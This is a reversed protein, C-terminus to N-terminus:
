HGNLLASISTLSAADVISRRTGRMQPFCFLWPSLPPNQRRLQPAHPFRSKHYNIIKHYNSQFVIAGPYDRAFARSLHRPRYHRM